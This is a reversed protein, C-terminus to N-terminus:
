KAVRGLFVGFAFVVVGLSVLMWMPAFVMTVPIM